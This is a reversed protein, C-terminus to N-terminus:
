SPPPYSSRSMATVFRGVDGTMAWDRHRGRHPTARIPALYAAVTGPSGRYGQETIERYLTSTSTIGANWRQHLYPKYADLM